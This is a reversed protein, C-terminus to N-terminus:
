IFSKFLLKNNKLLKIYHCYYGNTICINRLYCIINDKMHFNIYLKELSLFFNNSKCNYDTDDDLTFSITIYDLNDININGIIKNSFIECCLKDTDILIDYIDNNNNVLRIKNVNKNDDYFVGISTFTDYIKGLKEPDSTPIISM